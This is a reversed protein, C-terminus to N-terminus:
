INKANIAIDIITPIKLLVNFSTTLAMSEAQLVATLIENESIPM